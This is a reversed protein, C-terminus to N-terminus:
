MERRGPPTQCHTGSRGVPSSPLPPGRYGPEEVVAFTTNTPSRERELTCRSVLPFTKVKSEEWDPLEGTPVELGESVIGLGNSLARAPAMWIYPHPAYRVSARVALSKLAPPLIEFMTKGSVFATPALPVSLEDGTGDDYRVIQRDGKPATIAYLTSV